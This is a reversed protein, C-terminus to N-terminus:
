AQGTGEQDEHNGNREKYVRWTERITADAMACAYEPVRDFHGTETVCVAACVPCAGRKPCNGCKGPMRLKRTEERLTEWAQAFGTELPYVTPRPM